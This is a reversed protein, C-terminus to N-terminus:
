EVPQYGYSYLYQQQPIYSHQYNIQNYNYPMYNGLYYGNYQQAQTQYINHSYPNSSSNSYDIM